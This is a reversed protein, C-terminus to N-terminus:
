KSKGKPMAVQTLKMGCDCKFDHKKASAETMKVKCHACEYMAPAKVQILKMGCDCKFDHKKAAAASMKINCHTCEYMKSVAQRTKTTKTKSKQALAPFSVTGMFVTLATLAGLAHVATMKKM